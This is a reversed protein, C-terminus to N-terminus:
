AILWWCWNADNDDDPSRVLWGGVAGLMKWNFAGKTGENGGKGRGRGRRNKKRVENRKM